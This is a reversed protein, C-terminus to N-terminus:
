SSHLVSAQAGWGLQVHLNCCNQRAVDLLVSLHHVPHRLPGAKKAAVNLTTDIENSPKVSSGNARTAADTTKPEFGAHPTAAATYCRNRVLDLRGSSALWGLATGYRTVLWAPWCMCIPRFASIRQVASFNGM